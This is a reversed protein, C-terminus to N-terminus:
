GFEDYGRGSNGSSAAHASTQHRLRRHHKGGTKAGAHAREGIVQGLRQRLDAALRQHIVHQVAKGLGADPASHDVHMVKSAHHLRMQVPARVRLDDNRVLAPLQQILTAADLAGQRM